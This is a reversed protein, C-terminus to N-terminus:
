RAQLVARWRRGVEGAEVRPRGHPSRSPDPSSRLLPLYPANAANFVIAADPRGVVAHAVSLGTHSLTELSRKRVAPLNILRMGLHRKSTRNRTEATAVDVKHGREVLRVGIEEIATEPAATSQPVRRADRDDRIEATVEAHQSGVRVLGVTSGAQLDLHEHGLPQIPAVLLRQSRSQSSRHLARTAAAAKGDIWTPSRTM